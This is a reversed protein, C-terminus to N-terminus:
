RLWAKEEEFEFQFAVLVNLKLGAITAPAAVFRATLKWGLIVKQIFYNM